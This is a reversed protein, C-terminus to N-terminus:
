RKLLTWLLYPIYLVAVRIALWLLEIDSIPEEYPIAYKKM